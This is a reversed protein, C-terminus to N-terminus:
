IKCIEIKLTKSFTYLCYFNAHITLIPSSHQEHFSFRPAWHKHVSYYDWDSQTIDYLCNWDAHNECGIPSALATFCIETWKVTQELRTPIINWQMTSPVYSIVYSFTATTSTPRNPFSLVTTPVLSHPFL